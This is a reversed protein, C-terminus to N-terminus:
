GGVSSFDLDKAVFVSVSTGHRVRLTPQVQRNDAVQPAQARVSGPLAVIIGDTVAATAVSVGLDLASQLIANGFRALFKSDVKGTVGARGLPDSAPSALAIMVGDPRMLREWTVLARKQGPELSADYIGYLRSGRPVLVRSGDFGRVDRQVLARVAGPRTSDLATELVAPIVTGKSVTLSPNAFRTALVRDPDDPPAPTAPGREAASDRVPEPYYPPPPAYTPTNAPPFVAPAPARVAASPRSPPVFAPPANAPVPYLRAPHSERLPPLDARAYRAYEEPLRLPPPSAIREGTVTARTAPAQADERNGALLAFLGIGGALLLALFVYLGVDRSPPAAVVPMVDDHLPAASPPAATSM